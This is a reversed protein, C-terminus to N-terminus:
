AVRRRNIFLRGKGKKIIEVGKLDKKLEELLEAWIEKDSEYTYTFM